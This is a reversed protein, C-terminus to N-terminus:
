QKLYDIGGIQFFPRWKEDKYHKKYERKKVLSNNLYQEDKILKGDSSWYKWLGEKSNCDKESFEYEMKKQGNPYWEIWKGVCCFEANYVFGNGIIQGSRRFFTIPQRGSNTVFKCITDNLGSSLNLTILGKVGTSDESESQQEILGRQNNLSISKQRKNKDDWSISQVNGTSDFSIRPYNRTSDNYNFSYIDGNKYYSIDLGIRKGNAFNTEMWKVGNKFFDTIKTIKGGTYQVQSILTDERLVQKYYETANYNNQKNFYQTHHYLNYFFTNDQIPISKKLMENITQSFGNVSIIISLIIYNLKM